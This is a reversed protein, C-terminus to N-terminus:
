QLILLLLILFVFQSLLVIKSLANETNVKCWKLIAVFVLAIFYWAIFNQLPVASSQWSWMDMKPAVQELVMDYVLMLCPALLVTLVTNLRFRSVVSLSAYSLFLWNVGILLPTDFLKFGLGSGYRYSGFILGTDVGIAEISFGLAWILLFAFLTKRTYRSHYLALLYVNLILAAPTISIFFAKTYPILFGVTGVIYFIVIFKRVEFVSM